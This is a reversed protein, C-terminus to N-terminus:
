RAAEGALEARIEEALLHTVHARWDPAGHVDDYWLDAPIAAALAARLGAADPLAAHDLRVPRRTAATVTLAFAGRPDRTGILLAASRGNPSLAIRRFATRRRLAAAPLDIRRLIEGPKLATEQPGRVFATVTLRREGGDPTWILCSGDLAAALAIMPGAPLAMCLNGGVTALTWVKFSGLLARCCEPLLPAAIWDKPLELRNLAAITCTASISLGDPDIAHSPWGLGALDVLRVLGDQPESFLWTGGALWADGAQWRPLDARQRPRLLADVANLDM